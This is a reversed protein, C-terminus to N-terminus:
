RYRADTAEREALRQCDMCTVVELTATLRAADIPRDCRECIGYRGEDIRKIAALYAAIRDARRERHLASQERQESVVAVDAEDGHGNVPADVDHMRCGLSELHARLERRAAIPTM